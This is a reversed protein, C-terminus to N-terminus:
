HGGAAEILTTVHHFVESVKEEAQCTRQECPVIAWTLVSDALANPRSNLGLDFLPELFGPGAGIKGASRHRDAVFVVNLIHHLGFIEDYMKDGLSPAFMYM